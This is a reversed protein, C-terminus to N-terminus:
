LQGHPDVNSTGSAQPCARWKSHRAFLASLSSPALPPTTLPPSFPFNEKRELGRVSADRKAHPERTDERSERLLLAQFKWRFYFFFVSIVLNYQLWVLYIVTM